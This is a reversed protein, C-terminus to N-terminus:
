IISDYMTKLPFVLPKYELWLKEAFFTLVIDLIENKTIGFIYNVEDVIAFIIKKIYQPLHKNYYNNLLFSNIHNCFSDFSSFHSKEDYYVIASHCIHFEIRVKLSNNM